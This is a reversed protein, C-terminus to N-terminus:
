QPRWLLVLWVVALTLFLMWLVATAVRVYNM